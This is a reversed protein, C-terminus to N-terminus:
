TAEPPRPVYWNTMRVLGNYAYNNCRTDDSWTLTCRYVYAPETQVIEGFNCVHSEPIPATYPFDALAELAGQVLEHLRTGTPWPNLETM